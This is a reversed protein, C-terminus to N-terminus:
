HMPDPQSLTAFVPLRALVARVAVIALSNGVLPWARAFPQEPPLTFGPPFGLLRLIERPSFRRLGRETRLYSGSRVWSRGYASTFCASVAEPDDPDVVDLAGEYRALQEPAPFLEPAPDPDLCEHLPRPTACVAPAPALPDRSAVLYFRRRRNPMGLETPCLLGEWAQYGATELTARLRAHMRSGTFGPVNELALHRPGLEALRPLLALLGRSRPDDDDRGLGRRTFPQCPPSLWWLDAAWGRLTEPALSEVAAARTPHVFNRRYVALAARNVDVAAVVEATEGLAAACGGIGCFLEVVRPRQSPEIMPQTPPTM